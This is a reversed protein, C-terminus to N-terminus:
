VSCPILAIKEKACYKSLWCSHVHLNCLALHVLRINQEASIQQPPMTNLPFNYWGRSGFNWATHKWSTAEGCSTQSLYCALDYPSSLNQKNKSKLHGNSFAHNLSVCSDRITNCKWEPRVQARNSCNKTLKIDTDCSFSTFVTIWIQSWLSPLM